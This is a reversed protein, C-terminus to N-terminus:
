VEKVFTAKISIMQVEFHNSEQPFFCHFKSVLREVLLCFLLFLMVVVYRDISRISSDLSVCVCM